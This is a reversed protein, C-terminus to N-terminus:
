GRARNRALIGVGLLLLALVMLMWRQLTPIPQVDPQELGSVLDGFNASAAGGAPVTVDHNNGTSSAYGDPDTEVVSYNGPAM